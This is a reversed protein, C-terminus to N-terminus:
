ELYTVDEGYKKELIWRKIRRLQFVNECEMIDKYINKIPEQYETNKFAEIYESIITEYHETNWQSLDKHTRINHIVSAHHQNFLRGIESLSFKYERLKSMLFCKKYITERQRCKLHLDDREVYYMVMDLIEEQTM